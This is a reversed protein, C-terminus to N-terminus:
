SKVPFLKDGRRPLSASACRDMLRNYLGMHDYVSVHMWGVEECGDDTEGDEWGEAVTIGREGRWDTALIEVYAPMYGERPFVLWWIIGMPTTTTDARKTRVQGEDGRPTQDVAVWARFVVRLTYPEAGALLGEDEITTLEHRPLLNEQANRARPNRGKESFEEPGPFPSEQDPIPEIALKEDLAANAVPLCVLASPPDISERLRADRLSESRLQQHRPDVLPTRIASHTARTVPASPLRHGLDCQRPSPSSTDVEVREVAPFARPSAM